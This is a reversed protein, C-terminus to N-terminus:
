LTEKLFRILDDNTAKRWAGDLEPANDFVPTFKGEWVYLGPKNPPTVSECFIDEIDVSNEIEEWWVNWNKADNYGGIYGVILCPKNNPNGTNLVTALCSTKVSFGAIQDAM